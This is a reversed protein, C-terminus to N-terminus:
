ANRRWSRGLLERRLPCPEEVPRFSVGDDTAEIEYRAEVRDLIRGEAGYCNFAVAPAPM